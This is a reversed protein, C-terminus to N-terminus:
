IKGVKDVKGPYSDSFSLGIKRQRVRSRPQKAYACSRETTKVLVRRMRVVAAM